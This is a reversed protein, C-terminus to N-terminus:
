TIKFRKRRQVFGYGMLLNFILIFNFNQTNFLILLVGSILLKDFLNFDKIFGPNILPLLLPLGLLGLQAVHMTIGDAGTPEVLLIQSDIIRQATPTNYFDQNAYGYGIVPNELFLAVSIQFDTFRSVFSFSEDSSTIVKNIVSNGFYIYFIIFVISGYFINLKNQFM